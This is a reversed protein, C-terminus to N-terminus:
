QIVLAAGDGAAIRVITLPGFRDSGTSWEGEAPAAGDGAAQRRKIPVHGQRVAHAAIGHIRVIYTRVAPHFSGTPKDLDVVVRDEGVDPAWRRVRGLYELSILATAALM